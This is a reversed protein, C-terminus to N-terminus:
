PALRVRHNPFWIETSRTRMEVRVGDNFVKTVIAPGEFHDSQYESKAIWVKDGQKFM